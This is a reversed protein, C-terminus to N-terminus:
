CRILSEQNSQNLFGAHYIKSLMDKNETDKVENIICFHHKGFNQSGSVRHCTVKDENKSTCSVSGVVCWGLITNVAYPGSEGSSIVEEPELAETCNVNILLGVSINTNPCIENAIGEM